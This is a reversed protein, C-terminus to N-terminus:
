PNKNEAEAALELRQRELNKRAQEERIKNKKVRMQKTAYFGAWYLFAALPLMMLVLIWTM